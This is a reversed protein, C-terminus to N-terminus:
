SFQSCSFPLASGSCSNLMVRDPLRSYSLFVLSHNAPERSSPWGHGLIPSNEGLTHRLDRLLTGM